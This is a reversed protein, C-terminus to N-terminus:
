GKLGGIRIGEVFARQALFFLLLVPLAMLLSVAMMLNWLPAEGGPALSKELFKLGLAVPFKEMTNLYILPAQFNTWNGQFSLVAVVLLAPRVLPLMVHRFVQLPGAGDLVAAEEYERPITLFFQRLMFVNAPGWALWAPATLPAYTDLRGLEKWILFTPILTVVPPLMMTSLMLLFLARRGRFRFRAFGYAVVAASVVEAATALLTIFLSNAFFRGFPLVTWVYVYNEWVAPSPIWAPPYVFLQERAKLSTSVMWLLPVAVFAGGAALLFYTLAGGLLRAARRGM